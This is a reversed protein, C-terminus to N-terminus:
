HYVVDIAHYPESPNGQLSVPSLFTRIIGGSEKDVLQYVALNDSPLEAEDIKKKRM